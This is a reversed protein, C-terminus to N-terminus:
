LGEQTVLAASIETETSTLWVCVSAALESHTAHLTQKAGMKRQRYWNISSPTHVVQLDSVRVVVGGRGM